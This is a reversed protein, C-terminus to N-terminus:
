DQCRFSSHERDRRFVHAVLAAELRAFHEQDIEFTMADCREALQYIADAVKYDGEIQSDSVQGAPGRADPDLTVVRFALTHAAETLMRGLQGGGAIGLTKM